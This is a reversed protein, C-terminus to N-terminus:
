PTKWKPSSNRNSRQNQNQLLVINSEEWKGWSKSTKHRKQAKWKPPSKESSRQNQNQLKKAYFCIKWTKRMVRTFHQRWVFRKLKEFKFHNLQQKRDLAFITNLGKNTILRRDTTSKRLLIDQIKRTIWNLLTFWNFVKIKLHRYPGYLPLVSFFRFYKLLSKRTLSTISINM